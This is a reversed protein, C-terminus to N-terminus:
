WDATYDVWVIKKKSALLHEVKGPNWEQWNLGGADHSAVADSTQRAADYTM